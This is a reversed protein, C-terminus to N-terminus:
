WINKINEAFPKRPKGTLALKVLSDYIFMNHFIIIISILVDVIM